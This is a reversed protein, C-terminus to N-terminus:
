RIVTLYSHRYEDLEEELCRIRDQLEENEDELRYLKEELEQYSIDSYLESELINYARDVEEETLNVAILESQESSNYPLKIILAKNLFENGDLGKLVVHGIKIKRM